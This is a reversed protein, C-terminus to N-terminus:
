AVMIFHILSVYSEGDAYPCYQCAGRSQPNVLYGTADQIWGDVADACTSGEPSEFTSLEGSSCKLDMNGLVNTVTGEGFYFLPNLQYYWSWGAPTVSKPSLTGSLTNLFMFFFGNAMFTSALTPMLSAVLQALGLVFLHFLLYMLLAYGAVDSATPYGAPYYWLVFYLLGTFLAFPIEVLIASLVMVTWSYAGSAKDRLLFIGRLAFFREETQLGLPPGVIMSMFISLVFSYAGGVTSGTNLYTLGNVLGNAMNMILKATFYDPDRWNYLWARPLIITMQRWFSTAYKKDSSDLIPVNNGTSPTPTLHHTNDTNSQWESAWDTTVTSRSGAGVIDLLYEAPNQGSGIPTQSKQAFYEVATSCHSGLAGNYALRGGKALLVLHDFLGIVEGAPQHITCLVTQGSDALRRLLRVINLASQGDLGSTPEDLFLVDPHAALEVCISVRKRQELTLGAGPAGILAESLDQLDLVALITEVYANKEADPISPPRRLHATALLAERVTQTPLHIDQQQVYGM